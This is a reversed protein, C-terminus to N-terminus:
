ANAIGGGKAGGHLTVPSCPDLVDVLLTALHRSAAPLSALSQAMIGGAAMMHDTPTIREFQTVIGERVCARMAYAGRSAPVVVWGDDLRKPAPVEGRSCAALDLMRAFVRWLPGRGRTEAIHQMVPHTGHRAAVSNECANAQVVRLDDIYPLDAVAEGSQFAADLARLMPAVGETQRLYLSFDAETEPMQPPLVGVVGQAVPLTPLGFHRPLLLGLRVLHDRIFDQALRQRVDSDLPLGFALKAAAEQAGRCLNFVRPILTVVEEVPKGLVLKAVPMAQALTASLAGTDSASVAM